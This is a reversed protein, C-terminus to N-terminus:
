SRKWPANGEAWLDELLRRDRLTDMPQWFGDHRYAALEGQRALAELPEKEWFTDDDEILDLVSKELVFYGGNIRGEGGVPKEVFNTVRDGTIEAAGFRAAMRVATMTAKRGQAKHFAIIDAIDAGIVGDGYTMCFSEGPTLLHGIRKLRGGTMTTEGTNAITVRWDEKPNDLCRIVGDKLNVEVSSNHLRYNVFYEVIVQAKYGACIIFDRIGAQEYSKMIHWLIPYGGITVMPKPIRDTEEALRTGLGGALIVAKM